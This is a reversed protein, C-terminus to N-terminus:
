FMKAGLALSVEELGFDLDAVSQLWMCTVSQYSGLMHDHYKLGYLVLFSSVFYAVLVSLCM